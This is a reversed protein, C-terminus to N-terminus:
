RRGYFAVASWGSRSCAPVRAMMGFSRSSIAAAAELFRSIVFTRTEGGQVLRVLRPFGRRMDTHSTALWLRVNGPIAIM